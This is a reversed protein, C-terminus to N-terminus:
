YSCKLFLRSEVAQLSKNLDVRNLMRSQDRSLDLAETALKLQQKLRKTTERCLNVHFLNLMQLDLINFTGINALSMFMTLYM